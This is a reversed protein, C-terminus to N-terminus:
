LEQINLEVEALYFTSIGEFGSDISVYVWAEGNSDTTMLFNIDNSLSKIEWTPNNLADETCAIPLAIHGLLVVDAGGSQGDDIDMLYSSSSLDIYKKPEETLLSAKVRVSEGPAGGIGLCGEPISTLVDVRFDIIFQSNINLGTIKKKIFGKIDDSYNDWRFMIGKRFEYPIPMQALESIIFENLKHEVYHDATDISFGQESDSFDYTLQLFQKEKPTPIPTPLPSDSGGCSVLLFCLCSTFVFKFPM